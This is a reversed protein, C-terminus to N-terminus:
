NVWAPEEFLLGYKKMKKYLTTRNIDLVRATEQRNWSLAELAQLIIQKEPEELAEKLPRIGQALHPRSPSSGQRGSRAERPVLALHAAEVTGGRSLVVGREVANRLEHVNGPWDHKRLLELAEPTFGRVDKGQERAFRARFHDALREIDSGRHRLPSLKLSVISIRYFLDQRFLGQDVLPTLDVRTGLVIRADSTTTQTSGVPEYSGDQLLRLLKYQLGPSLEAVDDLFLTGGAASALKGIKEAGADGFGGGRRGFLEAEFAAEKLLGGCSFDVFPGAVRSGQEHLTRAVLSKGTGREGLILVPSRSSAISRALEITQLLSPDEGIVISPEPLGASEHAQSPFPPLVPTPPDESRPTPLPQSFSNGRGNAAVLTLPFEEPEGLCQAVSARLQSAPIPFRLVAAAGRQRAERSREPHASAFILIVPTRSHKRRLYTLFELADPDTPEVGALILDAPGHELMRVAARDSSAEDIRHGLNQLMSTMLAVVSPEPHVILLRTNSM